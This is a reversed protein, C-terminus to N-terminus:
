TRQKKKTPEARIYVPIQWSLRGVSGETVEVREEEREKGESREMEKIGMREKEGGKEWVGKGERREDRSQPVMRAQCAHVSSYTARGMSRRQLKWGNRKKREGFAEM